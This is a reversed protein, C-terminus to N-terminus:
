TWSALTKPLEDKYSLPWLPVTKGWIVSFNPPLLTGTTNSPSAAYGSRGLSIVGYGSFSCVAGACSVKLLWRLLARTVTTLANPRRLSLHCHKIFLHPQLMLLILVAIEAQQTSWLKQSSFLSFQSQVSTCSSLLSTFSHSSKQLVAVECVM